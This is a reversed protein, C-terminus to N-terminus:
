LRKEAPRVVVETGYRFALVVSLAHDVLLVPRRALRTPKAFAQQHAHGLASRPVASPGVPELDMTQQLILVGRRSCGRNATMVVRRLVMMVVATAAAVSRRRVILVVVLLLLVLLLMVQLRRRRQLGTENATRRQVRGTQDMVRTVMEQGGVLEQLGPEVTVTRRGCQHCGGDVVVRGTPSSGGVSYDTCPVVVQVVLIAAVTVLVKVIVMPASVVVIVVIVAHFPSTTLVTVVVVVVVVVVVAAVVFVAIAVSVDVDVVVFAVVVVVSAFLTSTDMATPQGRGVVRAARGHGVVLFVVPLDALGDDGGGRGDAGHEAATQVARGGARRGRVVPLQGRRGAARGDTRGAVRRAFAGAQGDARGRQGDARRGHGTEVRRVIRQGDGPGTQGREGTQAQLGHGRGAPVRGDRGTAGGGGAAIEQQGAGRRAAHGDFLFIGDVQRQLRAGRGLVVPRRSGRGPGGAAPM